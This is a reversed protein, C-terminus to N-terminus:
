ERKRLLDLAYHLSIAGAIHHTEKRDMYVFAPVREIAHEKFLQPHIIVSAEMGQTKFHVIKEAFARFSNNPIGRLVFVAPYDKMEQSLSLWINEPVSFSIFVFLKPEEIDFIKGRYCNLCESSPDPLSRIEQNPNIQKRIWVIADEDLRKEVENLWSAHECALAKSCLFIAILLRM